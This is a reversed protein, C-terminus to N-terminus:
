RFFSLKVFCCLDIRAKVFQVARPSFDCAYVFLNPYEELLPFFANGVGCGAELLKVQKNQFFTFHLQYLNQMKKNFVVDGDVNLLATKIEEFERATWHRDKFFNTSNRKYFLDWFKGAETELKLCKFETM